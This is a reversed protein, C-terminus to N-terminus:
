KELHGGFVIKLQQFNNNWKEMFYNEAQKQINENKIRENEMEVCRKKNKMQRM